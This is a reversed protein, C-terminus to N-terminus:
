TRVRELKIPYTQKSNWQPIYVSDEDDIMISHPHIFTDDAKKMEQLKGDKYVPRTGGPNSIVRNNKDLISIFGNLNPVYLEDGHQKIDCVQAGPMPITDIMKGELTYRKLAKQGRSAVILVPNKKDRTDICAGHPTKLQEPGGFVQIYKGSHEHRTLYHLGYGDCIIFQGSPAVAVDTPKYKAPEPYKGSEKPYDLTMVVKGDITTKFVKHLKSDTIFLFEEGKEKVLTFGHAGPYQTGWTELLHGAKDYVIVNNKTHNTLLLLRGRADQVMGHCDKVPVKKPDLVGWGPVVRYRHTRHGIIKGKTDGRLGYPEFLGAVLTAGVAATFRRRTIRM